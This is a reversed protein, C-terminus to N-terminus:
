TRSIRRAAALPWRLALLGVLALLLAHVAVEGMRSTSTVFGELRHEGEAAEFLPRLEALTSREAHTGSPGLSVGDVRAPM